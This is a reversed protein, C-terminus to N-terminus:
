NKAQNDWRDPHVLTGVWTILILVIYLLMGMWLAYPMGMLEPRHVGKPIILPSFAVPILIIVAIRCLNWLQKKNM